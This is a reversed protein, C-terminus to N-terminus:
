HNMSPFLVEKIDPLCEYFALGIRNKITNNCV